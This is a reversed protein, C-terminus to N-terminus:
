NTQATEVVASGLGLAVNLAIHDRALQRRAQALRARSSTV